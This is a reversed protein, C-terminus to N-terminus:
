FIDFHMIQNICTKGDVELVQQNEFTAILYSLSFVGFPAM